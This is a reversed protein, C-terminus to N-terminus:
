KRGGDKDLRVKRLALCSLAGVLLGLPGPAPVPAPEPEDPTVPPVPLEPHVAAGHHGDNGILFALLVIGGVVLWPNYGQPAAAPAPLPPPVDFVPAAWGGAAAPSAAAIAAATIAARIM